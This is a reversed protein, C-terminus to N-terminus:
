EALLKAISAIATSMEEFRATPLKQPAGTELSLVGSFGSQKLAESFAQWDIVGQYPLLHLDMGGFSDHVHLVKLTDRLMAVADAPSVDTVAAHGTDLCAQFHDDNMTRVFELIDAPTSISLKPAPMNELCITIDLEKATPLLQRFFEYNLAWTGAADPTGREEEGFPMIPHIVWYKCGLVATMALSRQMKQLREARQETTTDKPPWRWPGHAQWIKIGAADALQKERELLARAEDWPLSYWHTETNSLNFDVADFGHQRLKQYKHDGFRDYGGMTTGIRM